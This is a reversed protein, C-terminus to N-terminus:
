FPVDIIEKKVFECAQILHEAYYSKLSFGVVEKFQIEIEEKILTIPNKYTNPKYKKVFEIVDEISVELAATENIIEIRVDLHIAGEAFWKKSVDRLHNVDGWREFDEKPFAALHEDLISERSVYSEAEKKTDVWMKALEYPNKTIQIISMADNLDMDEVLDSPLLSLHSVTYIGFKKCIEADFRGITVKRATRRSFERYDDETTGQHKALHRECNHGIKIEAIKTM